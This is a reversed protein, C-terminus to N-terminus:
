PHHGFLLGAKQTVLFLEVLADLEDSRGTEAAIDIVPPAPLL